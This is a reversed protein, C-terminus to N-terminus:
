PEESVLWRVVDAVAEREFDPTADLGNRALLPARTGDYVAYLRDRPDYVLVHASGGKRARRYLWAAQEQRLAVRNGRAVKLELWGERRPGACWNVDPVGTGAVSEIRTADVALTKFAAALRTWLRGEPTSSM